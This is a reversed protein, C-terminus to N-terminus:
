SGSLHDRLSRLSLLADMKLTPAPLRAWYLPVRDNTLSRKYRVPESEGGLFDYSTAGAELYHQIATAHAVLGPRLNRDDEYLLGSQYFQIRGDVNLNYLVGITRDGSRVRVIEVGLREHHRHREQLAEQVLDTHFARRPPDFVGDQGKSTWYRRHLDILEALWELAAAGTSAIACTIPGHRKVYERRSRRIQGRTNASLAGLYDIGGRKRLAELSVFPSESRYGTWKRRPWRNRLGEFMAATAGELMIEDTGERLLLEILDDLIASRAEARALLDNHECGVRPASSTNLRAQSVRVPGLSGFGASLLAAGAVEGDGTRWLVGRTGLEEGFHRLWVKTWLPTLFASYPRVQQALATWHPLIAEALGEPELLERKM